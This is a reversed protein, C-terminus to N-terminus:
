SAPRRAVPMICRGASSSIMGRRSHRAEAIEGAQEDLAKRV